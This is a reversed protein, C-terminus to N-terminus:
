DILTYFDHRKGEIRNYCLDALLVGDGFIKPGPWPGVMLRVLATENALGWGLRNYELRNCRHLGGFIIPYTCGVGILM